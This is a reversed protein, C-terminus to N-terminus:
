EGRGLESIRVLNATTCPYNQGNITLTTQNSLGFRQHLTSTDEKPQKIPIPIPPPRKGGRGRIPM